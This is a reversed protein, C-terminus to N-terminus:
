MREREVSTSGFANGVHEFSSEGSAQRDLHAEIPCAGSSVFRFPVSPSKLIWVFWSELAKMKREINTNVSRHITLKKKGIQM